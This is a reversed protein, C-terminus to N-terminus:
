AAKRVESSVSFKPSLSRTALFVGSIIMITSLCKFWGFSERLFLISQVITFVPVLNAFIAARAAGVKRIAINYFLYALVSSCVALYCVALWGGPTTHVLYASPKSSLYFPFSLIVGVLFCYATLKLPSIEFQIMVKCNCVSYVAWICVALFMLIDGINFNMNILLRWSGDTITLLAGTFSLIIGLARPWSIHDGLVFFSLLAVLIPNTAAVLSSNIATTHKLASFFLAHYAFIGIAGLLVMYPIEHRKPLWSDPQNIYLVIFILPLAFLFRYFTLALPPFQVVALKGAIYAGSTLLSSFVMM